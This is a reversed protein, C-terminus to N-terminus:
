LSLFHGIVSAGKQLLAFGSVHYLSVQSIILVWIRMYPSRGKVLIDSILGGVVAGMSGAVLPIWSMWRLPLSANFIHLSISHKNSENLKLVYLILLQSM